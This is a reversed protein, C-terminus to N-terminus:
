RRILSVLLIFWKIVKEAAYRCRDYLSELEFYKKRWMSHDKEM